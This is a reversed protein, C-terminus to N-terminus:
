PNYEVRPRGTLHAIEREAATIRYGHLRNESILKNLNDNVKDFGEHIKDFRAETKEHSEDMKKIFRIVGWTLIGLMGSSTLFWFWQPIVAAFESM